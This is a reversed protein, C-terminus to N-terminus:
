SVVVPADSAVLSVSRADNKGDVVDDGPGLAPAVREGIELCHAVVAVAVLALVEFVPLPEGGLVVVEVVLPMSSRIEVALVRGMRRTHSSMCGRSPM